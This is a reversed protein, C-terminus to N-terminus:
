AVINSSRVSCAQAQNQYNEDFKKVATAAAQSAELDPNIAIYNALDPINFQTAPLDPRDQQNLGFHHMRTEINLAWARHTAPEAMAGNLKFVAPANDRLIEKAAHIETLSVSFAANISGVQNPHIATKGVMGFAVDKRLEDSLTKPDDIIEFVPATLKFGYPVFSGVLQSITHGLPGDYATMGRSRRLGLCALLDNGGVRLALIRERGLDEMVHRLDRVALPDFMERTELTPMLYLDTHSVAEFWLPMESVSAKPVILGDAQDIEPLSSIDAAMSYNRPRIFVLPGTTRDREAAALSKLVAQLNILGAEVDQEALADELCLVISRLGPIKDNLIISIIDPHIVPMYLTAGLAYPSLQRRM